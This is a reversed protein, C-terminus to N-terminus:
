LEKLFMLLQITYIFFFALHQIALLNFMNLNDLINKKINCPCYPNPLLVTTYTEVSSKPM